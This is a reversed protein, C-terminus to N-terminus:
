IPLNVELRIQPNVTQLHSSLPPSVESPKKNRANHNFTLSPLPPPPAFTWNGTGKLETRIGNKNAEEEQGKKLV